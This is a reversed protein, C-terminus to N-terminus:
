ATDGELKMTNPARLMVVPLDRWQQKLRRLTEMGNMGPMNIDLIVVDWTEQRLQRLAQEGSAAEGFVVDDFASRIIDKLGLRVIAHDDVLLVRLM